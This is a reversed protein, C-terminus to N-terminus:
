SRKTSILFHLPVSLLSFIARTRKTLMHPLCAQSVLEKTLSEISNKGWQDTNLKFRTELSISISKGKIYQQTFSLFFSDYSSISLHRAKQVSFFM